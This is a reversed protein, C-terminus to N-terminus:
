SELILRWLRPKLKRLVGGSGVERGGARMLLLTLALLAIAHPHTGDLKLAAELAAVAEGDRGAAVHERGLGVLAWCESVYDPVTSGGSPAATATPRDPYLIQRLRDLGEPEDRLATRYRNASANGRIAVIGSGVMLTM